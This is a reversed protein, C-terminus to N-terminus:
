KLKVSKKYVAFSIVATLAETIWFANWVGNAGIFKSNKLSTLNLKEGDNKDADYGIQWEVYHKQAFSVQRTAVPLGYEYFSSRAKVRVKGSQTTLPIEVFIQENKCEFIRM